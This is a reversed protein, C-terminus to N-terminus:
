RRDGPKRETPKMMTSVLDVEADEGEQLFVSRHDTDPPFMFANNNSDPFPALQYSGSDLGDFRYRGRADVTTSRHFFASGDKRTLNITGGALVKGDYDTAVGFITSGRFLRIDGLDTESGEIVTTPVLQGLHLQHKVMIQVSGLYANDLRFEGKRDSRVKRSPVNNPDGLAAGFLSTLEEPNYEQGHLSIEAGALPNGEADVVRGSVIGGLQMPIDIGDVMDRQITFGSSYTAAM